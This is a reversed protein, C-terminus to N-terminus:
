RDTAPATSAAPLTSRRRDWSLALGVVVLAGSMDILIDQVSGGREVYFLQRGEDFLAHVFALVLGTAVPWRLAARYGGLAVFGYCSLHVAKRAWFVWVQATELPLHFVNLLVWIMRGAGGQAGSFFAIGSAAAVLALVWWRQRTNAKVLCGLAFVTTMLAYPLLLTQGPSWPFSALFCVNLAFGYLAVAWLSWRDPRQISLIWVLAVMLILAWLGGAFTVGLLMGLPLLALFVLLFDIARRM